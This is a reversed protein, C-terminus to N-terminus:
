TSENSNVFVVSALKITHPFLQKLLSRPCEDDSKENSPKLQMQEPPWVLAGDLLELEVLGEATKHLVKEM